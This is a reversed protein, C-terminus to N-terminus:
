IKTKEKNISKKIEIMEEFEKKGKAYCYQFSLGPRILNFRQVDNDKIRKRIVKKGSVPEVLEILVKPSLPFYHKRELFTYGYINPLEPSLEIVPTDSTIFEKEDVAIYVRWNKNFIVNAFGELHEIFLLQEVNNFSLDYNGTQMLKVYWDIDEDDMDLGEKKKLEKAITKIHDKYGDMSARFKETEKYFHSSIRNIKERFHKSRIWLSSMFLSVFYMQRSDLQQNNLISKELKNLAPAAKDEIGQFIDEIKQSAEDQKGTDVAYFFKEYCVGSYPRAPNLKVNKIDLVEIFNKENAFRKLYFRPVWHQDEVIINQNNNAM